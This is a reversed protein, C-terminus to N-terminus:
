PNQLINSVNLRELRATAREGIVSMKKNTNRGKRRNAEPVVVKAVSQVLDAMDQGNKRKRAMFKTGGHRTLFVFTKALKVTRRSRKEKEAEIYIKFQSM